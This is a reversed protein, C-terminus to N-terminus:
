TLTKVDAVDIEVSVQQKLVQLVISLRYKSKKKSLQGECGKFPGQTVKVWKGPVLDFYPDLELEHNEFCRLSDLQESPISEPGHDGLIRVVGKTHLIENKKSLPVSVFVYGKFLPSVIIKCRDSWKRQVKRV